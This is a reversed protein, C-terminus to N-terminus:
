IKEKDLSIHKDFFKILSDDGLVAVASIGVHNLQRLYEVELGVQLDDLFVFPKRLLGEMALMVLQLTTKDLAKLPGKWVTEELGLKQLESAILEKSIGKHRNVKLGLMVDMWDTVKEYPLELCQPLYCMRQRFYAASDRNVWEGEITYYGKEFPLLGQMALLLSTKGTGSQGTICLNEGDELKLSLNDVIVKEARSLSVNKFELM